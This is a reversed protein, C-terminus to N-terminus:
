CSPDTRSDECWPHALQPSPDVSGLWSQRVAASKPDLRLEASVVGIRSHVESSKIFTDSSGRACGKIVAFPLTRLTHSSGKRSTHIRILHYSSCSVNM